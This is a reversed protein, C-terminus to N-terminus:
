PMLFKFRFFGFSFSPAIMLPFSLFILSSIPFFTLPCRVLFDSAYHNSIQPWRWKASRTMSKSKPLPKWAKGPCAAVISICWYTDLLNLTTGGAKNQFSPMLYILAPSHALSFFRTSRWSNLFHNLCVSIFENTSNSFISFFRSLYISLCVFLLVYLWVSLYISLCICAHMCAHITLYFSLGVSPRVTLCISLCNSAHITLCVSQGFPPCDSLYVSLHISPYDWLCVSLCICHKWFSLCVLALIHTSPLTDPLAPWARAKM